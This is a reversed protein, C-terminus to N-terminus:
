IAKLIHEIIQSKIRSRSFSIEIGLSEVEVKIGDFEGPAPKLEIQAGVRKSLTQEIENIEERKLETESYVVGEFRNELFHLREVLERYLDPIISIRKKSALLKVFNTFKADSEKLLSLLVEAKKNEEVEPSLLFAGAKEEYFAESLVALNEAYGKLEELSSSEILAKIYRKAVLEVM